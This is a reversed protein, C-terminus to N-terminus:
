SRLHSIQSKLNLTAEHARLLTEDSLPPMGSSGKRRDSLAKVPLFYM